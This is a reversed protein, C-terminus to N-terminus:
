HTLPGGVWAVGTEELENKQLHSRRWNTKQMLNKRGLSSFIKGRKLKRSCSLVSYFSNEVMLNSRTLQDRYNSCTLFKRGDFKLFHTRSHNKLNETALHQQRPTQHFALVRNQTGLHLPDM